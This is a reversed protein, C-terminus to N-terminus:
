VEPRDARGLDVAIRGLLAISDQSVSCNYAYVEVGTMAANALAKSFDPDMNWNPKFDVADKRQSVIIVAAGYGEAKARILELVHKKGRETPADPFRATSDDVLTVCKIEIYCTRENDTLCVDFRSNGYSAERKIHTYGEFEKLREERLAKLILRNAMVAELFVPIGKETHAIILDWKTKRLPNKARRLVMERGPVLLEKMRGTNAVHCLIDEGDCEVLAEFRNLRKIFRAQKKEGYVKITTIM